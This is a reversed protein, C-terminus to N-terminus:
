SSSTVCQQWRQKGSLPKLILGSMDMQTKKVLAEIDVDKSLINVTDGGLYVEFIKRRSEEDARSMSTVNSVGRAFFHKM